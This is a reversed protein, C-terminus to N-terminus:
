SGLAPKALSCLVLHCNHVDNGAAIGPSQIFGWPIHEKYKLLWQTDYSELVELGHQTLATM